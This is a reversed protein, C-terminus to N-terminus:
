PLLSYLDLDWKEEPDWQTDFSTTLGLGKAFKFMDNITKKMGPQMFYNSLHLHRAKKLIEETIDQWARFRVCRDDIYIDTNPKGFHIEDYPINYKDLWELTTKGIKAIVKSQDGNCTKMHRSTIIVIEHGKEHLKQLKEVAGQIPKVDEYSQNYKRIECITGDLDIGIRM